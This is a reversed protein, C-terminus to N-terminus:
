GLFEWGRQSFILYQDIRGTHSLSSSPSPAFHGPTYIFICMLQTPPAASFKDSAVIEEQNM